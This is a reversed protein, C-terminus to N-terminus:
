LSLIFIYSILAVFVIFKFSKFACEHVLYHFVYKFMVLKCVYFYYVEIM